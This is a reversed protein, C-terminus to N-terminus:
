YSLRVVRAKNDVCAGLFHVQKVKGFYMKNNKKLNEIQVIKTTLESCSLLHTHQPDV